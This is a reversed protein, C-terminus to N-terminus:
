DEWDFSWSDPSGELAKAIHNIEVPIDPGRVSCELYAVLASAAAQWGWATMVLYGENAVFEGFAAQKSTLDNDGHKMEIYFGHWGGRAVPLFLDLVGPKVGERKLKRAVLQNRHGGNPIHHLWKLQPHRAEAVQAWRFLAVQHDSESM